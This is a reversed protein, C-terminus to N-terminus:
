RKASLAIAAPFGVSAITVDDFGAEICYTWADAGFETQVVYDEASASPNGHYSKPLGARSRSLRGVVIPITLCLTGGVALVRRCEALAHIPNPVHELTDSHIVIDFIGDAFPLTHMDIEPYAGFVHGPIRRLFGHLNGAENLELIRLDNAEASACFDSLTQKSGVASLIAKALVISRLNAHCSACHEGQQRDIYDVEAQALQWEDILGQWLM